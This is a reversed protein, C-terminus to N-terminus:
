RYSYHHHSHTTSAPQSAPWTRWICPTQQHRSCHVLCCCSIMRKWERRGAPRAPPRCDIIIVRCPGAAHCPGVTVRPVAAPRRWTVNFEQQWDSLSCLEIVCWWMIERERERERVRHPGAHLDVYMRGTTMEKDWWGIM